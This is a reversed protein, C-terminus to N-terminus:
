RKQRLLVFAEAREYGSEAGRKKALAEIAEPSRPHPFLKVESGYARMASLKAHMSRRVDEYVTPVFPAIGWETESLTEYAYVERITNGKVPRACVLAAEHVIRHDRNLDGAHPIYIVEPRFKRVVDALKDNIEKQGVMDLKVTPFGLMFTKKVGLARHAKAIEKPRRRVYEASWLPEYPETAICVGIQAGLRAYKAIVGGCGLVEDDGHPALVLIRQSKTM